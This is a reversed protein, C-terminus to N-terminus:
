NVPLGNFIEDIPDLMDPYVIEDGSPFLSDIDAAAEVVPEPSESAVPFPPLPDSFM